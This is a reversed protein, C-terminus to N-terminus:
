VVHQAKEQSDFNNNPLRAIVNYKSMSKNQRIFLTAKNTHSSSAFNLYHM